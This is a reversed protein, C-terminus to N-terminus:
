REDIERAAESVTVKWMWVKRQSAREENMGEGSGVGPGRTRLEASLRPITGFVIYLLRPTARYM